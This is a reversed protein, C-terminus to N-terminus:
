PPGVARETANTGTLFDFGIEVGKIRGVRECMDSPRQGTVLPSDGRAGFDTAQPKVSRKQPQTQM